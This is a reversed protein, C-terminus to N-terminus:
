SVPLSARVGRAPDNLSKSMDEHFARNSPPKAAPMGRAPQGPRAPPTTKPKPYSGMHWASTAPARLTGSMKPESAAQKESEAASECLLRMLRQARATALAPAATAGANVAALKRPSFPPRTAIPKGYSAPDRREGSQLLELLRNLARELLLADITRARRDGDAPNL